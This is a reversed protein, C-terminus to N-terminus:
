LGSLLMIIDFKIQLLAIRLLSWRYQITDKYGEGYEMLRIRNIDRIRGIKSSCKISQNFLGENIGKM